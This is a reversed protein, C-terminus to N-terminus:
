PGVFPKRSGHVSMTQQKFHELFTSSMGEVSYLTECFKLITSFVKPESLLMLHNSSEVDIIHLNPLQREWEGWYNSHIATVRDEPLSFYPEMDGLLLGSKDRFYYCQVSEPTALPIIEVRDTEFARQLKAMQQMMMRLQGETKILGRNGALTILQQLFAENDLTTDVEDRHILEASFKEPSQMIASLLAINVAELYSGKETLAVNKVTTMDYADLMVITSVTAGFEQLQRTIEYAITGGLSYGGIDYPGDPQVSQIIHVYYAAMAQIGRLPLRETMWGRAQIGYFLRASKEAIVQYVEVGGLGGHIWFIPRGRDSQNLRILEPFQAHRLPTDNSTKTVLTRPTTHTPLIAIVDQATRCERLRVLDISPDIQTMLEQHLRMLMMSDFGYQELQHDRRLESPQLGLLASFLTMLTAEVSDDSTAGLIDVRHVPRVQNMLPRSSCPPGCWYDKTDFPYPPLSVRKIKRGTYLKQWPVTGGHTWYIALKDLHVESLSTEVLTDCVQASFVTQKIPSDTVADAAYLQPATNQTQSETESELFSNLAKNLEELSGIVWSIRCQLSDRGTQLSYALNVLLLQPQEEIFRLLQQAVVPLRDWSVASLVVIVPINPPAHFHLDHEEAPYEEILLHSNTGGTGYSHLGALRPSAESPWSETDTALRCPRNETELETNSRTFDLIKHIRNTQFSRIIKFLAALASASHMHGTMPKLTSVFCNEAPLTVDREEALSQLARNFAEWEVIDTVLNGMGQAEIYRIRRPDIGAQSYCKKILETHSELHPAAISTGGKGNHNVATNKITAYIRDGDQEAIALPKLLITAVGEARLFGDANTGFSCVTNQPSMLGMRSLGVFSEPRLLLNAAGVIAQTIEGCRLSTVARHIAVAAGSCMTNVFESPGRLDFHYSIRNPFMSDAHGFGGGISLGSEALITLYEDGETAVFVGTNTNKFSSPAYGADELTHYVSMLLLRQRPDMADAEGPLIGFFEPDFGRIDPIFGGWKTHSRNPDKGDPDYVPGWDFRSAPIEEILPSDQDLADWFTRVSMCQPFFGSVGIIAIPQLRNDNQDSSYRRLPQSRALSHRNAPAQLIAEEIQRLKEASNM